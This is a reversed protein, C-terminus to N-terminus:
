IASSGATSDEPFLFAQGHKLLRYAHDMELLRLNTRLMQPPQMNDSFLDYHCPIVVKVGLRAALTAAEAPGMNRFAGNIVAVLVDPRHPAMAAVLVDHYATDGTLYGGAPVIAERFRAVNDSARIPTM